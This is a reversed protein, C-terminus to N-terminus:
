QDRHCYPNRSCMPISITNIRDSAPNKIIFAWPSVLGRNIGTGRVFAYVDTTNAAPDLIRPPRMWTVRLGPLATGGFFGALLLCAQQITTFLSKMDSDSKTQPHRKRATADQM